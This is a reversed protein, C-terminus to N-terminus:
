SFTDLIIYDVKTFGVGLKLALTDGLITSSEPYQIGLINLIRFKINIIRICEGTALCFSKFGMYCVIQQIM